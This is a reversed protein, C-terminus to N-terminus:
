IYPNMWHDLHEIIHFDLNNYPRFLKFPSHFYAFASAMTGGIVHGRFDPQITNAVLEMKRASLFLFASHPNEAVCLEHGKFVKRKDTWGPM